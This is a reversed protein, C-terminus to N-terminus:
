LVPWALQPLGSFEGLDALETAPGGSVALLGAAALFVVIPLIAAVYWRASVRWRAFRGLFERLGSRGGVIVTVILAALMPGLLGPFHSAGTTAGPTVTEGRIAMPFWYAWSLTWALIVFSVLPHRRISGLLVTM